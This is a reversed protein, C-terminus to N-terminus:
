FQIGLAGPVNRLVAPPQKTLEAVDPQAMEGPVTPAIVQPEPVGVWEPPRAASARDEPPVNAVLPKVDILSEPRGRGIFELGAVYQGFRAEDLTNPQAALEGRMVTTVERTTVFVGHGSRDRVSHVEVVGDIGIVATRGGDPDYVVIVQGGRVSAVATASEIRFVADAQHYNPSVVARLKGRTLRVSSRFVGRGPDLVQEDVIVHTDDGLNLLTDDHLVVLMRGPRGTRLQEGASFTAAAQAPKWAEARGSEAAGEV